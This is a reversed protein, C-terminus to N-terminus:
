VAPTTVVSKFRFFSHKHICAGIMLPIYYIVLLLVPYAPPILEFLSAICLLSIVGVGIFFYSDPMYGKILITYVNNEKINIVKEGSCWDLKALLPHEGAPLDICLSANRKLVYKKEGVFVYISRFTADRKRKLILTGMMRILNTTIKYCIYLINLVISISM